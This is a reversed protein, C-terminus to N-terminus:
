GKANKSRGLGPPPHWEPGKASNLALHTYLTDLINRIVKGAGFPICGNLSTFFLVDLHKKM